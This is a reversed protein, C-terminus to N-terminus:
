LREIGLFNENECASDPIIAVESIKETHHIFCTQKVAMAQVLVRVADVPLPNDSMVFGYKGGELTVKYRLVGM